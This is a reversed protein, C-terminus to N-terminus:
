LPPARSVSCTRSARSQYAVFARKPFNNGARAKSDGSAGSVSCTRSAATKLSLLSPRPAPEKALERKVLYRGKAARHGSSLYFIRIHSAIPM